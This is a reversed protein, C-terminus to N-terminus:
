PSLIEQSVDFSQRCRSWFRTWYMITSSFRARPVNKWIFYNDFPAEFRELSIALYKKLKSCIKKNKASITKRCYILTKTFFRAKDDELMIGFPMPWLSAAKSEPFLAVMFCFCGFKNGLAIGGQQVISASSTANPARQIQSISKWQYWHLCQM